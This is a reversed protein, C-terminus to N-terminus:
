SGSYRNAAFTIQHSSFVQISSGQPPSEPGLEDNQASSINVSDRIVSLRELFMDAGTEGGTRSKVIPWHMTDYNNTFMYVSTPSSPVGPTLHTLTSKSSRRSSPSPGLQIRTEECSHVACPLQHGHPGAPILLITWDEHRVGDREQFQECTARLQEGFTDRVQLAKPRSEPHHAWCEMLLQWANTWCPQETLVLAPPTRPYPRKTQTCAMRWLAKDTMDYYPVTGTFIELFTMGLAYVDSEMTPTTPTVEDEGSLLEPAAWRLTFPVSATRTFRLSCASSSASGFDTIKIAGDESILVNAAKLDGHIVGKGHM